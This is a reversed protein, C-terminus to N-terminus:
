EFVDTVLLEHPINEMSTVLSSALVIDDPALHYRQVIDRLLWRLADIQQSVDIEKMTRRRGRGSQASPPIPYLADPMGELVVGISIRNTNAWLSGFTLMGSHWAAMHEPVLQCITGDVAIYYHCSWRAELDAIAQL